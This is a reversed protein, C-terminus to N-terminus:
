PTCAPEAALAWAPVGLSRELLAHLTVEVHLLGSKEGECCFVWQLHKVDHLGEGAGEGM